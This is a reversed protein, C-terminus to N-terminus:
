LDAGMFGPPPDAAVPKAGALVADLHDGCVARLLDAKGPRGIALV